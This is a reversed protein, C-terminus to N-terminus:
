GSWGTWSTSCRASSPGRQRWSSSSHRSRPRSRRWSRAM